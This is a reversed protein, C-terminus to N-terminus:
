GSCWRACPSRSPGRSCRCRFEVALRFPGRRRALSAAVGQSTPDAAAGRGRRPARLLFVSAGGAVIALFAPPLLWRWDNGGYVHLRDLWGFPTLTSLWGRSGASNAVARLLFAAAVVALGAATASRRPAFVQAALAGLTVAVATFLSLGLAWALAGGVPEGLVLLPLAGFAGVGLAAVAMALLNAALAARATLPRSLVLEARGADEEGRTLRVATLLAWSAVVLMVMWGGDWVAFGGATDIAGPVGQMIRVASSTSLEVLRQRSEATPYAHRFVLVEIAMYAAVSLWLLSAGRRTLRWTWAFRARATPRRADAASVPSAPTAVSTM